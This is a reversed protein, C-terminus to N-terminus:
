IEDCKLNPDRRSRQHTTSFGGLKEPAAAGGIGDSSVVRLGRKGLPRVEFFFCMKLRSLGHIESFQKIETKITEEKIEEEARQLNERM